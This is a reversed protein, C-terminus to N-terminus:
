KGARPFGTPIAVHPLDPPSRKGEVTVNEDGRQVFHDAYWIRLTYTGPAVDKIEFHGTADPQVFYPTDFVAVYGRLGTSVKDEIVFAGAQAAKFVKSGNAALVSSEILDPKGEVALNADPCAACSKITVETGPAVAVLPKDFSGGLFQMTATTTKAPAAPPTGQPVLVVVLLPTADVARIPMHPNETRDLFGQDRLPPPGSAPLDVKGTVNGAHAAAAAVLVACAASTSVAARFRPM